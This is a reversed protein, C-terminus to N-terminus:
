KENAVGSRFMVHPDKALAELTYEAFPKARLAVHRGSGFDLATAVGDAEMRKGFPIRNRDGRPYKEEHRAYHTIEDAFALGDYGVTTGRCLLDIRYDVGALKELHMFASLGTDYTIGLAALLMDREFLREYVSGPGFSHKVKHEMLAEAEPGVAVMSFLPDLSRVAGPLGRVYESFVGIERSSPTGRVDFVERRRFSYTFTPAVLTGEPGIVQRVAQYLGALGNEVRGLTFVASHVMVVDGPGAGLARFLGALEDVSTRRIGAM